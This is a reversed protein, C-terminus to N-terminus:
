FNYFKILLFIIGDMNEILFYTLLGLFLLVIGLVIFPLQFGGIEYLIGGFLPGATSGLGVFTEM